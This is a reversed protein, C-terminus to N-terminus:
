IGRRLGLKRLRSRLTSPKLGLLRAAGQAGEIRWSTLALMRLIHEREVEELTTGSGGASGPEAKALNIERLSLVGNSSMIIARQIVNELERINGPWTHEQLREMVAPPIIIGPKRLAKGFHAALHQALLPIDERRERLAPLTIPFVNLRYYLDRRFRSQRVDDLLDRNTAAIVRVDVDLTQTSGLRDFQGEQLVRLLKPQLEPSLEGIEDLFLSGRHALEFRGVQVAHAGTFAGREHGFLESEILTAPLASCNLAIFKAGARPSRQHIARAVLEKGTGTEGLLLVTAQTAAVQEVRFMVYQWAPSEGVMEPGRSITPAVRRPILRRRDPGERGDAPLGAGRVDADGDLPKLTRQVAEAATALGAAATSSWLRPAHRGCMVLAGHQLDRGELPVCVLSGVGLAWLRRRDDAAVDRDDGPVGLLLTGSRRVARAIWPWSLMDELAPSMTSGSSLQVCTHEGENRLVAGSDFTLDSTLRALAQQVKLEPPAAADGSVHRCFTDIAMEIHGHIPNAPSLQPSSM